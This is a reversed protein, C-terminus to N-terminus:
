HRAAFPLAGLALRALGALADARVRLQEPGSGMELQALSLPEMM